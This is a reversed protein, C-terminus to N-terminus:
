VKVELNAIAGRFFDIFEDIGTKSYVTSRYSLGINAVTGVTSFSLVLPTVPGTSVGRVYDVPREGARPPWLSNLNMNTVGGWLPYHKQYLKRRHATSFFSLVLRGLALELGTALYIRKRKITKTWRGIECALAQLSLQEPVPHTIIFSGLSLGFTGRDEEALDRRTNVICGVSLNKRRGPQNRNPALRAFAQLLLALLIDNVTIGWAKAASVLRSLGHPDLSFLTFGNRLDNTDQFSPRCSTKLNQLQSPLAALKSALAGPHSLLLSRPASKGLAPRRPSRTEAAGRYREVIEKLLLVISEADAVAHLYALGLSFSNKRRAAFFRFPSFPPKQDFATNLQREMEAALVAPCSAEDPLINITAERSTGSYSFTTQSKNLTLETLARANLTDNVVQHLRPQNLPEPVRVVHVANYPYM